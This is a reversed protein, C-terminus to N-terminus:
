SFCNAKASTFCTKGRSGRKGEEWKVTASGSEYFKVERWGARLYHRTLYKTNTDAYSRLLTRFRDVISLCLRPMRAMM